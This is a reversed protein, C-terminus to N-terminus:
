QLCFFWTALMTSPEFADNGQDSYRNYLRSLDLESVLNIVFRCKSDQPVFDDLSYGLMSMQNRNNSIFGM